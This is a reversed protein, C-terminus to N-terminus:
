ILKGSQVLALDSLSNPGRQKKTTKRALDLKTTTGYISINVVFVDKISSVLL